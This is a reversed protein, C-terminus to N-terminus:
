SVIQPPVPAPGVYESQGLADLAWARGADTLEYRMEATVSASRVGLTQILRAERAMEILEPWTIEWEVEPLQIGVKCPRPM